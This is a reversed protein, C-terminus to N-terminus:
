EPFHSSFKKTHALHLGGEWTTGKLSLVTRLVLLCLKGRSLNSDRYCSTMVWNVCHLSTPKKGGHAALHQPPYLAFITTTMSASLHTLTPMGDWSTSKPIAQHSSYESQSKKEKVERNKEGTWAKGQGPSTNENIHGLQSNVHVLQM